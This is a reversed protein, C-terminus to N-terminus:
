VASANVPPADVVRERMAASALALADGPRIGVTGSALLGCLSQFGGPHAVAAVMRAHTLGAAFLRQPLDSIEDELFLWPGEPMLGVFYGELDGVGSGNLASIMFTRDFSGADNLTQALTLLVERKLGDVKNLVLAAPIKHMELGELIREVDRDIGRKADVLVAIVDADAVGGWAADVM